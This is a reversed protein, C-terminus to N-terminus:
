RRPPLLDAARTLTRHLTLRTLAARRFALTACRDRWSPGSGRTLWWRTVLAGPLMVVTLWGAAAPGALWPVPGLESMRGGALAGGAFWACLAAGGGALLAGGLAALATAAPHWPRGGAPEAVLKADLGDGEEQDTGGGALTWERSEAAARGILVAPVVGALLPLACAVLRWGAGGGDPLLALLPFDPLPGLRTGTPAVVTDAGVAFGPGLAYSTAWLVANPLLLLCAVLLGVYGAVSEDVTRASRGAAGLGVLLAAILVLGGAAVLGFGGAAAARRVAPGGGVPAAWDPWWTRLRVGSRVLWQPWRGQEPHAAEAATGGLLAAAVVGAVAVLDLLPRARFPGESACGAVVAAAVGLYGACVVLPARWQVPERRGVHVGTRYLLVVTFLTPLLPTLTVPTTRDSGTLPGGHGLVWLACVLRGASSATDDAYPTFVWLGLVPVGIAALTLLGARVGTLLDALLPRTGLEGPVGLIPRGMLQTM